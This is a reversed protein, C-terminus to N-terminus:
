IKRRKRLLRAIPFLIAFGVLSAIVVMVVTRPDGISQTAVVTAAAINRQATGLGLVLLAATATKGMIPRLRQAWSQWRTRVFLGAALPLLM